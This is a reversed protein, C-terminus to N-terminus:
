ILDDIDSRENDDELLPELKDRYEDIFGDTIQEALFSMVSNFTVGNALCVRAKEKMRKFRKKDEYRVWLQEKGGFDLVMFNAPLTDGFETFLRNLVNSLDDVTKIEKKAKDFEQKMETTPLSNRADGIVKQIYESDDFAMQEALEEISYKETLGMLMDRFKRQNLKGKIMNMRMTSFKQLDENSSLEGECIVAPIKEYDMLKAGTWRHEGDIIMLRGDEKPILLVPQLFGTDGALDEALQNFKSDDMENPNWENADILDIPVVGFYIQREEDVCNVQGANKLDEYSGSM